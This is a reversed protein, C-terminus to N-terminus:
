SPATTPSVCRQGVASRSSSTLSACSGFGPLSTDAILGLCERTLDDVVELRLPPRGRFCGVRFGPELASKTRWLHERALARKRGGRRRVQLREERYLRRFKKHNMILGECRMLVLLRRYGSRRRIAAPERMRTRVAADDPQNSRYRVSTRDVGLAACARRESVEFASRLRAVGGPEGFGRRGQEVNPASEGQQQELPELLGFGNVERM